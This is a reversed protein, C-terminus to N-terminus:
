RRLIQLLFVAALLVGVVIPWRVRRVARPRGLPAWLVGPSPVAACRVELIMQALAETAGFPQHLRLALADHRMPGLQVRVSRLGNDAPALVVGSKGCADCGGGDCRACPMRRPVAVVIEGGATIWAEPVQIALRATPGVPRDLASPDLVRALPPKTV